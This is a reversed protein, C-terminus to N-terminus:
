GQNGLISKLATDLDTFRFRYGLRLATAPLAKQGTLLSDAFEGVLAKLGFGPVPFLAPRHLVRGLTRAFEANTVPNPATVNCPSDLRSESVAWAFLGIVDDLHIWPTWQKGSGMAGGLGLKWPNFLPFPHLMKDLAGGDGTLVIGIRMQAVRAGWERARGAEQEWEVCVDPLFGTGPRDEETVPTDGRDGYYGVASACVLARATETTGDRMADVLSRTTEVRSRRIKEKYEPTWRQGAVPEGALHVVTGAEAVARKWADGAGKGWAMQVVDPGLLGGARDPDRSLATVRHGMGILESCLPRGVLGTAGTVVIEM